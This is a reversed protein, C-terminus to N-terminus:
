RPNRVRRRVHDFDGRRVRDLAEILHSDSQRYVRDLCVSEQVCARWRPSSFCYPPESSAGAAATGQVVPPLQYFDGCLVLQLGGFPRSHRM